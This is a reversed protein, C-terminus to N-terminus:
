DKALVGDLLAAMDTRISQDTAGRFSSMAGVCL